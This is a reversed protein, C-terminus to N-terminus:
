NYYNNDNNNFTIGLFLFYIILTTGGYSLFPLPIGMVPLLNINMFINYFQQFLFVSIFSSIFTKHMFNNTNKKKKIIYIDITLYCLIIIIGSILGFNGLSFAFMFDNIGEPIYLLIQGLGTGFLSSNAITTLAQTTQYGELNYFNIIRDMRYFFSTGILKILLDTNFFYLYIFLSIILTFLLLLIIFWKKNIKSTLITSILIIIYFIIAGTDPELFVLTSPILTILLIYLIYKIHSKNKFDYKNSYNALYLALSIKTLESPQFSFIKFNFWAKAGNIVGGFFLVLILLIISIIYILFSYRYFFELKIKKCIFFIIFSITCIIIQKYFYSTYIINLFRANYTNLISFILITIIPIYFLFIKKM